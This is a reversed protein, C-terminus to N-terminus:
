NLEFRVPIQVRHAIAQGDVIHSSFRWRKIAKIAADDLINAGSSQVLTQKIQKGTEDIWVEVMVMGEIGRRKAMKPYSVPSPRTAFTPKSVLQPNNNVGSSAEATQAPVSPAEIHKESQKKPEVTKKHVVPKPQKDVPKVKKEVPKPPRPKAKPTKPAEVQKKKVLKKRETPAEKEPVQQPQTDPEVQATPKPQPSPVAVLNLSVKNAETGIPMALAMTNPVVSLLVGHFAVSIAGAIVYRKTNM